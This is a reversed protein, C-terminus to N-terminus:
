GDDGTDYDILTSDSEFPLSDYLPEPENVDLTVIVVWADQYGAGRARLSYEEAETRKAFTGVRVKFYPVEYDVHIPRDFIEQAVRRANQADGYLQTSYLQVRYVQGTLQQNIDPLAAVASDMPQPPLERDAEPDVEGVIRRPYQEPVVVRDEELALPDFRVDEPPGTLEDRPEEPGPKEPQTCGALLLAVLVLSYISANRM